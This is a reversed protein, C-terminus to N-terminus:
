PRGERKFADSMIEQILDQGFHDVLEQDVAVHQLEDVADLLDMMGEAVLLARAECRERFIALLQSPSAQVTVALDSINCNKPNGANGNDSSSLAVERAERTANKM